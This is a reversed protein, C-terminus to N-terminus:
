RESHTVGRPAEGAARHQCVFRYRHGPVTCLAQEREGETERVERNM